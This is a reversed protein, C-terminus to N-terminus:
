GCFSPIPRPKVVQQRVTGAEAQALYEAGQAIQMQMLRYLYGLFIMLVVMGLVLLRQLNRKREM